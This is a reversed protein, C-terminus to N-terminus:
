RERSLILNAYGDVRGVWGTPVVITSDFQEVIAPGDLKAGIPLKDREYLTTETGEKGDFYVDIANGPRLPWQTASVRGGTQERVVPGGREAEVHSRAFSGDDLDCESTAFM